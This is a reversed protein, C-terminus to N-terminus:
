KYILLKKDFDSYDDITGKQWTKALKKPHYSGTLHTAEVQAMEIAINKNPITLESKTLIIVSKKSVMSSLFPRQKVFMQGKFKEEPNILKFWIIYYSKDTDFVLLGELNYYKSSKLINRVYM